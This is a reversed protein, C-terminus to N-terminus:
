VFQQFTENERQMFYIFIFDGRAAVRERCWRHSGGVILNTCNTNNTSLFIFPDSTSQYWSPLSRLYPYRTPDQPPWFKSAPLFTQAYLVRLGALSRSFRTKSLNFGLFQSWFFFHILESASSKPLPCMRNCNAVNRASHKSLM